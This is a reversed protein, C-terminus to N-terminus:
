ISLSGIQNKNRNNGTLRVRVIGSADTIFSGQGGAYSNALVVHCQDGDSRSPFNLSNGLTAGGFWGGENYMSAPICVITSQKKAALATKALKECRASCNVDVCIVAVVASYPLFVPNYHDPQMLCAQYDAGDPTEKHCMLASAGEGVFYASSLPNAGPELLGVVFSIKRANYIKSLARLIEDRHISPIGHQAYPRGLNFAEPLVLLADTLDAHKVLEAHLAALPNGYGQAFHFFSISAFM